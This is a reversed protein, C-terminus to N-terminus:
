EHTQFSGGLNIIKIFNLIETKEANLTLGSNRLFMQQKCFIQQLGTQSSKLVVLVDDAFGHVKPLKLKLKNSEIEKIQHNHKINGILNSSVLKLIKM